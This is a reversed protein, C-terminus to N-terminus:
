SLFFSFTKGIRAHFELLSRSRLTPTFCCYCHLQSLPFTEDENWPFFGSTQQMLKPSAASRFSSSRHRLFSTFCGGSQSKKRLEDWCCRSRSQRFFYHLLRSFFHFLVHFLMTKWWRTTFTFKHPLLMYKKLEVRVSKEHTEETKGEERSSHQQQQKESTRMKKRVWCGREVAASCAQCM